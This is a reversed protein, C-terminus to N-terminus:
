VFFGLCDLDDDWYWPSDLAVLAQVEPTDETLDVGHVAVYIVDHEADLTPVGLGHLSALGDIFQSYHTSYYPDTRVNRDKRRTSAAM